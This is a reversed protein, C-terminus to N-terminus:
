VFSEIVLRKVQRTLPAHNDFRSDTKIAQGIWARIDGNGTLGHKRQLAKVLYGEFMVTTRKGEVQIAFHVQGFDDLNNGFGAREAAIEITEKGKIVAFNQPLENGTGEDVFVDDNSNEIVLDTRQGRRNGIEDEITRAIVNEGGQKVNYVPSDPQQGTRTAEDQKIAQVPNLRDKHWQYIARRQEPPLIRAGNAIGLATKAEKALGALRAQSKVSLGMLDALAPQLPTTGDYTM